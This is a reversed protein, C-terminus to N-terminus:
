SLAFEKGLSGHTFNEEGSSVWLWQGSVGAM